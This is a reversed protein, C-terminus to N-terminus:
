EEQMTLVVDPKGIKWGEAYAPARPLDKPNGEKAGQDVWAAITDIEQQTLRKDNGFKGFHPDAHWPPMVRSVVKERISRAWPRADKFSLLSMPALEGPRHCDACNKFLIPAVDRSFTVLKANRGPNSAQTAPSAVFCIIAFSVTAILLSLADEYSTRMASSRAASGGSQIKFLRRM